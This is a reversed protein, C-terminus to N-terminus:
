RGKKVAARSVGHQKSPSTRELDLPGTLEGLAILVRQLIDSEEGPM